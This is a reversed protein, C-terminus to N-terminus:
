RGPAAEGVRHRQALGVNIAHVQPAGNDVDGDEAPMTSTIAVQLNYGKCSMGQRFAVPYESDVTFTKADTDGDFATLTFTVTGIGSLVVVIERAEVERDMTQTFPHSKWQYSEAGQNRDWKFLVTQDEGHEILHPTAYLYQGTWDSDIHFTQLTDEDDLRWWGKHITDFLWNRPALLWNRWAGMTTHPRGYSGVDLTPRWFNKALQTSIPEAADGGGWVWVGDGQVCYAYGLPCQIGLSNSHGPSMVHPLTRATSNNLDGQLALGGGRSKLLLLENFTLSAACQYGTPNEYGFIVNFFDGGLTPDLTDLENVATWYFAENTAYVTSAGAGYLTLPFAVIRGQHGVILSPQPLGPAPSPCNRTTTTGAAQDDPFECFISSDGYMMVVVPTGADTPTTTNSRSKQFQCRAPRYQADFLLPRAESIARISQWNPVAAFERYREVKLKRDVAAAGDFYEFGVWVESNNGEDRKDSTGDFLPDNVMMGGIFYDSDPPTAEFDDHLIEEVLLPLARLTGNHDAICRFTGDRTAAGPPNRPSVVDFIGPKFDEITVWELAESVM